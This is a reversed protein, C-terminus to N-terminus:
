LGVTDRAVGLTGKVFGFVGGVLAAMGNIDTWDEAEEAFAKNSVITHLFPPDRAAADVGEGTVFRLAVSSLRLTVTM